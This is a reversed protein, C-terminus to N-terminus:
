PLRGLWLLSALAGVLLVAIGAGVFISTVETAEAKVVLRTELEDYVADLDAQSEAGYYSGGTADAIGQLTAEDLRTHVRFGDIDLTVGAASGIGVTHIRVGRDAAAEVARLPDPNVTNEGDSLLVIVAPAYTGEPVPTPTPTPEPPRNTYYDTAPGNEALAITNLATLIGQGLSTGREPALRDIAALVAADDSTPVQVSFASDSFAVVGFVIGVPQRAVFERAAAKAAEMRTPAFDDAAMSGSVDFALIVTGELRPIGVVGQPRALAVALITLGLLLIAGPVRQRLGTRRGVPEVVTLNGYGAARRRRRRGVFRYLAVGIPILLVALLMTPWIFSV